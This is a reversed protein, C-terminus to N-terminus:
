VHSLLRAPEAEVSCRGSVSHPDPPMKFLRGSRVHPTLPLGRGLDAQLRGTGCRGPLAMPGCHHAADGESPVAPHPRHHCVPGGHAERGGGAEQACACVEALGRWAGLFGARGEM